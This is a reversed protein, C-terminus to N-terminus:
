KEKKEKIKNRKEKREKLKKIAEDYEELIDPLCTVAVWGLLLLIIVLLPIAILGIVKLMEIDGKCM